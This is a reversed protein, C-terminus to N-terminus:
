LCYGWILDGVRVCVCVCVCVCACVCVNSRNKLRRNREIRWWCCNMPTVTAIYNLAQCNISGTLYLWVEQPSAQVHVCVWVWVWVWVWVCGCACACVCVCVCVCVCFAHFPGKWHSLSYSWFLSCGSLLLPSAAPYFWGAGLTSGVVFDCRWCGLCCRQWGTRSPIVCFRNRFM